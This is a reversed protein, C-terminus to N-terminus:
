EDRAATVAAGPRCAHGAYVSRALSVDTATISSVVTRSSMVAYPNTSHPLGLAHGLEHLLTAVQDASSYSEGRPTQEAVLIQAGVIAGAADFTLHTVGARYAAIPDNRDLPLRRMVVVRVTASDGKAARLMRVPIGIENWAALAQDLRHGGEYRWADNVEDLVELRVRLQRTALPRPSVWTLSSGLACRPALGTAVRASATCGTGVAAMVATTACM